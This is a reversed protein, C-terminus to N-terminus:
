GEMRYIPSRLGYGALGLKTLISSSTPGALYLGNIEKPTLAFNFFKLQAIYARPDRVGVVGSPGVYMSGTCPSFIPRAIKASQPTSPILENVNSVTYLSSNLYLSLNDDKIVSVVHVWRQLPFYDIKSTLYKSADQVMFTKPTVNVSANTRVSMYLTNTNGDLAVIPNANIVSSGDASRMFVLQPGDVTPVYDVLYLWFSFSFEQGNITPPIGSQDVRVQSTMGYLKMPESVILTNKTNATKLKIVLFAILVAITLLALIIFIAISGKAAINDRIGQMTVAGSTKIRDFIGGSGGRNNDMVPANLPAAQINNNIPDM